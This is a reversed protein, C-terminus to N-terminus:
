KELAAKMAAAGVPYVLAAHLPFQDTLKSIFQQESKDVVAIVKTEPAYKQLSALLVDLNSVTCGAYDTGFRYVFDCVIFDFAQKKVLSLAKRMSPVRTMALGLESYLASHNPHLPTEAISLLQAM